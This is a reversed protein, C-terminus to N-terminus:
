WSIPGAINAKKTQLRSTIVISDSRTFMHREGAATGDRDGADDSLGSGLWDGFAVQVVNTRELEISVDDVDDGGADGSAATNSCGILNWGIASFSLRANM